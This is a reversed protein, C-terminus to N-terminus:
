SRANWHSEGVCTQRHKRVVEGISPSCSSVTPRVTSATWSSSKAIPTSRRKRGNGKHFTLSSLSPRHGTRVPFFLCHASTAVVDATVCFANCENTSRGGRTRLLGVAGKISQYREPVPTRNDKGFIAVPTALPPPPEFGLQGIFNSAGQALGIAGLALGAAMAIILSIKHVGHRM